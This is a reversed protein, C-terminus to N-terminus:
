QACTFPSCPQSQVFNLNNNGNDLTTKLCEQYARFQNGAPTNGHLCLESEAAAMLANITIFGNSGPFYNAICDGGYVLATGSVGPHRVNLEMAVLQASLMNAMNTANASLLFTNLQSKQNNLNGTFDQDGGSSNRLCLSNLYTFDASTERNQGNKNSWFGLTLGGGAGLCVNGFEVTADPPLTVPYVEKPSGLGTFLVGNVAVGTHVWNAIDGEIVRYSDADVVSCFATNREIILNDDAFVRIPWGNIYCETPDKVGNINADYFKNVCLTPPTPTPTPGSARVKFNDTKTSSNTFDPETSVWVKYEGGNNPTTNYGCNPDSEGNLACTPDANLLVTCLQICQAVGGNVVFPKDAPATQGVSTGLVCAGSPDTVQVYYSGDPLSAAGPHAPGGNLFVDAKLAYINLDVGSCTPDTTFIAGPLPQAFTNGCLFCGALTIILALKTKM